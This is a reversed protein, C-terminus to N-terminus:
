KVRLAIGDIQLVRGTHIDCYAPWLDVVRFGSARLADLVDHMLPQGDYLPVLSMEVELGSVQGLTRHAGELVELEYGQVDVKLWVRDGANILGDGIDDLACMQVEERGIYRVSPDMEHLDSSMEFFSSSAGTNAAVHLSHTRSRAGLALQRCVWAGDGSAEAQLLGFPEALPEFSVIRGHFGAQRLERGYGGHNAGVDLVLTVDGETLLRARRREPQSHLGVRSIDIGGLQGADKVIRRLRRDFSPKRATVVGGLYGDRTM